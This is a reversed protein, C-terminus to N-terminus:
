KLINSLISCNSIDEKFRVFCSILTDEYETVLLAKESKSLWEFEGDKEFSFNLVFGEIFFLPTPFIIKYLKNAKFNKGKYNGGGNRYGGVNNEKLVIESDNDKEKEYKERISQLVDEYLGM